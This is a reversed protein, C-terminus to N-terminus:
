TFTISMQADEADGLLLLLLLLALLFYLVEISQVKVFSTLNIIENEVATHYSILHCQYFVNVKVKFETYPQTRQGWYCQTMRKPRTWKTCCIPSPVGFKEQNLLQVQKIYIYIKIETINLSTYKTDPIQGFLINDNRNSSGFM